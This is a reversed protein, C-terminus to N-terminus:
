DSDSDSDSDSDDSKDDDTSSDDDDDSEAGVPSSVDPLFLPTKDQDQAIAPNREGDEDEVIIKSDTTGSGATGSLTVM